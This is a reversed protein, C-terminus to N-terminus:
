FDLNVSDKITHLHNRDLVKNTRLAHWIYLTDVVYAIMLVALTGVFAFGLTPASPMYLSLKDNFGTYLAGGACM